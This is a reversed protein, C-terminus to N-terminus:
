LPVFLNCISATGITISESFMISNKQKIFIDIYIYKKSQPTITNAM